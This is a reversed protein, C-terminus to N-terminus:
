VDVVGGLGAVARLNRDVSGDPQETYVNGVSEVLYGEVAAFLAECDREDVVLKSDEV